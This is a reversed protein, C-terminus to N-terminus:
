KCGADLMRVKDADLRRVLVDIKKDADPGAVVSANPVRAKMERGSSKVEIETWQDKREIKMEGKKVDGKTDGEIEVRHGIHPTLDDDKDLWYFVNAFMATTGMSGPSVARKDSMSAAGPEMPANILLFGAGNGEGRILCGTLKVSEAAVPAAIVGLVGALCAAACLSYSFKWLATM